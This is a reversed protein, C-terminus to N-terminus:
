LKRRHIGVGPILCYNESCKHEPLSFVHIGFCVFNPFDQLMSILSSGSQFHISLSSIDFYTRFSIFCFVSSKSSGHKCAPRHSHHSTVAQTEVMADDGDEAGEDEEHSFDDNRHVSSHKDAPRKEGEKMLKTKKVKKSERVAEVIDSIDDSDDDLSIRHLGGKKVKPLEEDQQSQIDNESQENEEPEISGIAGVSKARKGRGKTGKKALTVSGSKARKRGRRKSVDEKLVEEDAISKAQKVSNKTEVKKGQKRKTGKSRRHDSEAEDDPSLDYVSSEQEKERDSVTDSESIVASKNNKNTLRRDEDRSKRNRDKSKENVSSDDETDELCITKRPKRLTENKAHVKETASSGRGKLPASVVREDVM